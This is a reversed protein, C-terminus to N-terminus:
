LFQKPDDWQRLAAGDPHPVVAYLEALAADSLFLDFGAGTVEALEADDDVGFGYERCILPGPELPATFATFGKDLLRVRLDPEVAVSVLSGPEVAAIV